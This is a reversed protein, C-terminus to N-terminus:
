AVRVFEAIAPPSIHREMCNASARVRASAQLDSMVDPHLM